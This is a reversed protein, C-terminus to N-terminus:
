LSHELSGPWQGDASKKIQVATRPPFGSASLAKSALKTFDSAGISAFETGGLGRPSEAVARSLRLMNLSGTGTDSTNRGRM